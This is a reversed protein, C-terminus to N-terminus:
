YEVWMTVPGSDTGTMFLPVSAAAKLPVEPIDALDADEIICIYNEDFMGLMTQHAVAGDDSQDVPSALSLFDFCISKLKGGFHDMLYRATRKSVSPSNYKYEEPDESRLKGYGTRIMLLDCEAIQEEYPILDEPEIKSRSGKPIDLLLPKEYFFREFPMEWIRLGNPNFHRPADFHTGFHNFLTVTYTNALNGKEMSEFPEIHYTPNGPWGPAGEEIPYSILKRM